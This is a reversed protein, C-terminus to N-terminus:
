NEALHTIVNVLHSCVHEGTGSSPSPLFLCSPVLALVPAWCKDAARGWGEAAAWPAAIRRKLAFICNWLLRQPALSVLQLGGLHFIDKMSPSSHLSTSSQHQPVPSLGPSESPQWAPVGSLFRRHQVRHCCSHGACAGLCSAGQTSSPQLLREGLGWGGSLSSSPSSRQRVGM